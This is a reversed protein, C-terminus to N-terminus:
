ESRAMASRTAARPTSSAASYASLAGTTRGTMVPAIHKQESRKRAMRGEGRPVWTSDM